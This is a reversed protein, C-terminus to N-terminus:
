RNRGKVKGWIRNNKEELQGHLVRSDENTIGGTSVQKQDLHVIADQDRYQKMTVTITSYQVAQRVLFGVGQMKLLTQISDSLKTNLVYVGSMDKITVSPPVAM